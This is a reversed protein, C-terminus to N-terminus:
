RKPPKANLQTTHRPIGLSPPKANLLNLQTHTSPFTISDVEQRDRPATGPATHRPAHAIIAAACLLAALALACKPLRMGVCKLFTCCKSKSPLSPQQHRISRPASESHSTRPVGRPSTEPNRCGPGACPALPAGSTSSNEGRTCSKASRSRALCRGM